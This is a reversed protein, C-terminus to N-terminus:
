YNNEIDQRILIQIESLALSLITTKPAGVRTIAFINAGTYNVDLKTIVSRKFRHFYKNTNGKWQYEIEVEGPYNLYPNASGYGGTPGSPYAYKRFIKVIDFIRQSEKETQAVFKFNFAYSRFNVGKFLQALYPNPIVGFGAQVMSSLMGSPNAISRLGTQMASLLGNKSNTGMESLSKMAQAGFATAEWEINCNTAMQEPMYLHVSDVMRTRQTSERDFFAFYISAPTATTNTLIDPYWLDM